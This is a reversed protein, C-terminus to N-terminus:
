KRRGIKDVLWYRSVHVIEHYKNPVPIKESKIYIGDWKKLTNIRKPLHMIGLDLYAQKGTISDHEKLYSLVRDEQTRKRVGM